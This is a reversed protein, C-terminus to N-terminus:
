RSKLEKYAWLCALFFRRTDSIALSHFQDIHSEVQDILTLVEAKQFRESLDYDALHRKEQLEVFTGALDMIEVPITYKGNADRPLKRIITAKLTGGAFSSCADKMSTHVFARALVRRHEKQSNQTGIQVRCVEDVLYHFVAYYATSVARRLSAQRPKRQDIGALTRALDILDKHM